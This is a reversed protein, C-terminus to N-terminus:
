EFSSVARVNVVSFIRASEPGGNPKRLIGRGRETHDRVELCVKFTDGSPVKAETLRGYVRGDGFILRGSLLTKQPLKGWDGILRLTTDGEQVSIVGNETAVAFHAFHEREIGLTKMTEVAGAPCPEPEPTPRVQQPTPCGTLAKCVLGTVLVKGARGLVKKRPKESSDDKHLMTIMVPASISGMTPEGGEGTPPDLPKSSPAVEHGSEAQRTTAVESSTALPTALPSASLSRAFLSAGLVVAAIGLV